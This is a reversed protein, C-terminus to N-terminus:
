DVGLECYLDEVVFRIDVGAARAEGEFIKASHKAVSEPQSDVLAMILLGSDLKSTTLIYNVIRKM